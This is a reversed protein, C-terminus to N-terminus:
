QTVESLDHLQKSSLNEIQLSPILIAVGEGWTGTLILSKM